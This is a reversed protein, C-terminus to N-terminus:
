SRSIWCKRLQGYAFGYAITNHRPSFINYIIYIYISTHVRAYVHVSCLLASYLEPSFFVRLTFKKDVFRSSIVVHHHTHRGHLFGYIDEIRGGRPTTKHKPMVLFGYVDEIRDGSSYSWSTRVVPPLLSSLM